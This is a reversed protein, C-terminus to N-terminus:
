PQQWSQERHKAKFNWVGFRAFEILVAGSPIQSRVEDLSVWPDDSSPRNLSQGLQRSLERERGVLRDFLDRRGANSRRAKLARRFLSEAEALQEFEVCLLALNNLSTATDPHDPGLRAERITLTERMLSEAEDNRGLAKYTMALNNTLTLTVAHEHGLARQALTVAEESAKAAENMRGQTRLSEAHEL